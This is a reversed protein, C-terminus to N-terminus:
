YHSQVFFNRWSKQKEIIKMTKKIESNQLKKGNKTSKKLGIKGHGMGIYVDM